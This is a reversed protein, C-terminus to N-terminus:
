RDALRLCDAGPVVRRIPRRRTAQSLFGVRKMGAGAKFAEDLGGGASRTEDEFFFSFHVRLIEAIRELGNACVRAQGREYQRLEAVAVGLESALEAEGLKLMVRRRRIRRGVFVDIANPVARGM